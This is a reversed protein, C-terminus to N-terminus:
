FFRANQGFYVSNGNHWQASSGGWGMNCKFYRQTNWTVGACKWKRERYGYAYVYHWYFGIGLVSPRNSKIGDRAKNRPSWSVYPVGWRSSVSYGAGRDRAWRYGKWMDWPNTAAASNFPVCWTNCDDFVKRCVARVDNNNYLPSDAWNVNGMVRRAGKRDWYGYAMAWATPGCGSPGDDCMQSDNWFQTYRKQDGWSGAYWYSWSTWGGGFLGKPRETAPEVVAIIFSDSTGDEFNLTVRSGGPKRGVVLFGGGNATDYAFSNDFEPDGPVGFQVSQVTKGKAFTRTEEVQIQEAHIQDPDYTEWQWAAADARLSRLKRLLEDNLYHQKFQEYSEFFRPNEGKPENVEERDREVESSYSEIQAELLPALPAPDIIFPQNGLSAIATGDPAEGVLFGPDYRVPRVDKNGAQQRLIEVSPLGETKFFPFPETEFTASVILSGRERCRGTPETPFNPAFPGPKYEQPTPDNAIVPIEFFAPEDGGKIAPNYIPYAINGLRVGSWGEVGGTDGEPGEEVQAFENLFQQALDRITGVETKLEELPIASALGGEPNKAQLKLRYFKNPKKSPDILTGDSSFELTDFRLPSWNELNESVQLELGTATQSHSLVTFSGLLGLTLWPKHKKQRHKSMVPKLLWRSHQEDLTNTHIKPSELQPYHESLSHSIM